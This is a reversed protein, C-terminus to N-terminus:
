GWGWRRMLSEGKQGRERNFHWSTVQLHFWSDSKALSSETRVGPISENELGGWKCGNVWCVPHREGKSWGAKEVTGRKLCWAMEARKGVWCIHEKSGKGSYKPMCGHGSGIQERAQCMDLPCCPPLSPPQPYVRITVTCDHHWKGEPFPFFLSFPLLSFLALVWAKKRHLMANINQCPTNEASLRSLALARGLFVWEQDRQHFNHSGLSRQSTIFLHHSAPRSLSSLFILSPHSLFPLPHSLPILSLHTAPPTTTSPSVPPLPYHPSSLVNHTLKHSMLKETM